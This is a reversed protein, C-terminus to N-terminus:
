REGSGPNPVSTAAAKAIESQIRRDLRRLKRRIKFRRFPLFLPSWLVNQNGLGDIIFIRETDADPRACVLLNAPRLDGVRILTRLLFGSFEELAARCSADIGRQIRRQLTPAPLGDAGTLLDTVLGPGLDTDVLGYCRPIHNWVEAGARGRLEQYAAFELTNEDPTRRVGSGSPSFRDHRLVKICRDSHKPHRYCHRHGGRAFPTLDALRVQGDRPEFTAPRMVAFSNV